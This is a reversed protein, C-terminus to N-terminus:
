PTMRSTEFRVEASRRITAPGLLGALRPRPSEVTVVIADGDHCQVSVLSQPGALEAGGHHRGGGGRRHLGSPRGRRKPAPMPPM